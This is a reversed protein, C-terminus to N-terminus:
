REESSKLPIYKNWSKYLTNKDIGLIRQIIKPTPQGKKWAAWANLTRGLETREKRVSKLISKDVNSREGKSIQGERSKKKGAM